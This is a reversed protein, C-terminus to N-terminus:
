KSVFELPLWGARGIKDEDVKNLAGMVRVKRYPFDKEILLAPTGNSVCFVGPILLLGIYDKAILSKSVEDAAEKTEGICIKQTPDSNGPLRIFGSDGVVITDAPATTETDTNTSSGAVFIITFLGIIVGYAIKRRDSMFKKGCFKCVRAGKHILEKCNPCQKTVSPQNEM